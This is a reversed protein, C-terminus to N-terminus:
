QRHPSSPSPAATVVASAVAPRGVDFIAVWSRAALFLVVVVPIVTWVVETRRRRRGGSLARRSRLVHLVAGAQFALFLTLALALPLHLITSV